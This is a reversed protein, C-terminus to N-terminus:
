WRRGGAGRLMVMLGLRRDRPVPPLSTAAFIDLPSQWYGIEVELLTQDLSTRQRWRWTHVNQLILRDGLDVSPDAHDVLNRILRDDDRRYQVRFFTPEGAPTPVIPHAAVLRLDTPSWGFGGIGLTERARGIDARLQARALLVAPPEASQSLRAMRRQSNVLISATLSLLVAMVAFSVVLEVLSFGRTSRRVARHTPRALSM